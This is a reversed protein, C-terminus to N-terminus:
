AEKSLVTVHSDMWTGGSATEVANVLNSVQREGARGLLQRATEVLVAMGGGVGSHGQSLMGGNTTMPLSGGPRTAGSAVFEGAPTGGTVKLGDLAILAFVPYADYVGALQIDKPTLGSERYAKAAAEEFGLQALNTDQSLSYHTVLSGHGRVYAPEPTHQTAEDAATVVLASAGDVLQNCMRSTLPDAVVRSSLVQEVTLEDRFMANPNIRAWERLSVCVEAFQEVTAGTEHMYRQSVLAGVANMNHGYPLEWEADVGTTSFLDVGRQPPLSGVKDSHVILIRKAAGSNILGEAVLLATASTAGGSMVQINMSASRLMGLEELMRSFVLDVNFQSSALAGVPLVADIDSPTLGASLIAEASCLVAAEIESRDPFRGSPVEGIGVIAVKSRSM